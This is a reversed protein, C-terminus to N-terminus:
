VWSTRCVSEPRGSFMVLPDRDRKVTINPAPASYLTYADAHYIAQASVTCRDRRLGAGERVNPHADLGLAVVAEHTNCALHVFYAFDNIPGPRRNLEAELEKARLGFSQFYETHSPRAAGRRHTQPHLAEGPRETTAVFRLESLACCLGRLPESFLDAGELYQDVQDRLPCRIYDLMPHGHTSALVELLADQFVGRDAHSAAFVRWPMHEIHTLKM